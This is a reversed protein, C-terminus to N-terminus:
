GKMNISTVNLKSWPKPLVRSMKARVRTKETGSPSRTQKPEILLSPKVTPPFFIQGTEMMVLAKTQIM